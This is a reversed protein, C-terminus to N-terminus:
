RSAQRGLQLMIECAADYRLRYIGRDEKSENTDRTMDLAVDREDEMWDFLAQALEENLIITKM